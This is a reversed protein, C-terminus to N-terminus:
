IYAAELPTSSLYDDWALMSNFIIRGENYVEINPDRSVLLKDLSTTLLGDGVVQLDVMQRYKDNFRESEPIGLLLAAANPDAERNISSRFKCLKMCAELAGEGEKDILSAASQFAALFSETEPCDHRVHLVSTIGLRRINMSLRLQLTALKRHFSRSAKSPITIRLEPVTDMVKNINLIPMKLPIRCVGASGKSPLSPVDTYTAVVHARSVRALLEMAGRSFDKGTDDESIRPCMKRHEDLHFLCQHQDGLKEDLYKELEDETTQFDPPNPNCEIKQSGPLPSDLFGKICQFMFDAGQERAIDPDNSILFPSRLKFNKDQNNDFAIYFYHTLTTKLFAPLICTTKGSSSPAAIYKVCVRSQESKKPPQMIEDAFRQLDDDRAYYGLKFLPLYFKKKVNYQRRPLSKEFNPWSSFIKSNNSKM